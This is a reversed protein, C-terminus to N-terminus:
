YTAKQMYCTEPYFLFSARLEVSFCITMLVIYGYPQTAKKETSPVAKAGPASRIHGKYQMSHLQPYTGAISVSTAKKYTLKM